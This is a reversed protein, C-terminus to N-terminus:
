DTAPPVMCTFGCVHDVPDCFSGCPCNADTACETKTPSRLVVEDRTCQVVSAKTSTAIHEADGDATCGTGSAILAATFTAVTWATRAIGDIGPLPSSNRQSM